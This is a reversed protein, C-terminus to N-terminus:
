DLGAGAHRSLVLGDILHEFGCKTPLGHTATTFVELTM